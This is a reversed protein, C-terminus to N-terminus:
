PIHLLLESDDPDSRLPQAVTATRAEWARFVNRCSGAVDENLCTVQYTHTKHTTHKTNQTHATHLRHAALALRALKSQAAAAGRRRSCARSRARACARRM